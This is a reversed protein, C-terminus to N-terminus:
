FRRTGIPPATFRWSSTSLHLKRPRTECLGAASTSIYGGPRSSMWGRLPPRILPGGFGPREAPLSSPSEVHRIQARIVTGYWQTSPRKPHTMGKGHARCRPAWVTAHPAVCAYGSGHTQTRLTATNGALRQHGAHSSFLAPGHAMPMEVVLTCRQSPTTTPRAM